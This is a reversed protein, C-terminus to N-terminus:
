EYDEPSEASSMSLTNSLTREEEAQVIESTVGHAPYGPAANSWNRVDPWKRDQFDRLSGFLKYLRRM